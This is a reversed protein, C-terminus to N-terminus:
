LGISKQLAKKQKKLKKKKEKTGWKLSQQPFLEDRAYEYLATDYQNQWTILAWAQDGKELPLNERSGVGIGFSVLQSVCDERQESKDTDEIKSWWDFYVAFQEISEEFEDVIGIFFKRRLVEKAEELHNKTIEGEMQNVLYRVMWNNEIHASEAYEILSMDAIAPNLQRNSALYNFMSVARDIPHRLFTFVRGMNENTFLVSTESLYSSFVIDINGSSALGFDRARQIGAINWTFVM